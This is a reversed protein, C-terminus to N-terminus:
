TKLGYGELPSLTARIGGMAFHLGNLVPVGILLSSPHRLIWMLQWSPPESNSVPYQLKNTTEGGCTALTKGTDGASGWSHLGVGGLAQSLVIIINKSGQLYITGEKGKDGDRIREIEREREREREREWV